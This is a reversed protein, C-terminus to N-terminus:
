DRIEHFHKPGFAAAPLHRFKESVLRASFDLAFFAHSFEEKGEQFTARAWNSFRLCLEGVSIGLEDGTATKPAPFISRDSAIWEGVLQRYCAESAPTDWKGTYFTKGGLEVCGQGTAHKRHKPIRNSKRHPKPQDAM